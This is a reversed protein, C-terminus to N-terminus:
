GSTTCPDPRTCALTGRDNSIDGLCDAIDALTSEVKKGSPDTCTATLSGDDGRRAGECSVKYTGAPANPDSAKATGSSGGQGGSDGCAALLLAFLGTGVIGFRM